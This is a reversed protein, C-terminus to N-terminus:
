GEDRVASDIETTHRFQQDEPYNPTSYPTATQAVLGGLGLGLPIRVRQFSAAVSGDTVRMYTDGADPDKLTLYAVDTGLLRRARRVIAQLVADLDQLAAIEGATDFLAVLQAEAPPM